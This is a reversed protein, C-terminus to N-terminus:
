NWRSPKDCTVWRQYNAVLHAQTIATTDIQCKVSRPNIIGIDNSTWTDFIWGDMHPATLTVMGQPVTISYSNDVYDIVLYCSASNVDINTETTVNVMFDNVTYPKGNIEIITFEDTDFNLPIPNAEASIYSDAQIYKTTGNPQLQGNLSMNTAGNDNFTLGYSRPQSGVITLFHNDERVEVELDVSGNAGITVPNGDLTATDIYTGSVHIESPPYGEISVLATMQTNNVKVPLNEVLTKVGNITISKIDTGTVTLLHSGDIGIFTDKDIDIITHLTSGDSIQVGDKTVIAGGKSSVDVQYVEGSVSIDLPETVSVTYPLTVAENNVTMYAINTGSITITKEATDVGTIYISNTTGGLPTFTYPLQSSEFSTGNISFRAIGDGNIEINPISVAGTADISHAGPTLTVDQGNTVSNGDLLMSSMNEYNVTLTSTQPIQEINIVTNQDVTIIQGSTVQVENVTVNVTNPFIVQTSYTQKLNTANLTASGYVNFPTGSTINTTGNTISITDPFNITVPYDAGRVTLSSDSSITYNTIPM